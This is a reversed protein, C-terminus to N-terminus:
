DLPKGNFCASAAEEIHLATWCIHQCLLLDLLGLSVILYVSHDQLCLLPQISVAVTSYICGSDLLCLLTRTPVAVTVNTCCSDLLCLLPRTHVFWFAM